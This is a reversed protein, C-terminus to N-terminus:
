VGAAQNENSIDLSKKVGVAQNSSLAASKVIMEFYWTIKKLHIQITVNIPINLAMKELCFLVVRWEINNGPMPVISRVLYNEWYFDSQSEQIQFKIQREKKLVVEDIEADHVADTKIVAVRPSKVKLLKGCLYKVASYEGLMNWKMKVFMFFASTLYEISSNFMQLMKVTSVQGLEFSPVAM